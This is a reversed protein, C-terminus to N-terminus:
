ETLLPVLELLSKITEHNSHSQSRRDLMIGRIGANAAGLVDTQYTDGVHIVRSPEVAARELALHFIRPSPKKWGAEASSLAFQFYHDISLGTVITTLSSNWNSVIALKFGETTLRDLTELTDPYLDWAAPNGFFQYIEDFIPAHKEEPIGLRRFVEQDYAWWWERDEEDSCFFEADPDMMEPLVKEVWVARMAEVMKEITTEVGHHLCVQHYYKPPSPKATFLTYGADMFIM